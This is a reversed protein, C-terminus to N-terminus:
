VCDTLCNRHSRLAAPFGTPFTPFGPDFYEEIRWAGDVLRFSFKRSYESHGIYLPDSDPDNPPNWCQLGFHYDIHPHLQNNQSAGKKPKPLGANWCQSATPFFPPRDTANPSSLWKPPCILTYSITAVALREDQTIKLIRTKSGNYRCGRPRNEPDLIYTQFLKTAREPTLRPVTSTLGASISALILIQILGTM